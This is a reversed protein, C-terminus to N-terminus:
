FLSIDFAFVCLNLTYIVEKERERETDELLLLKGVLLKMWPKANWGGGGGILRACFGIPFTLRRSNRSYNLVSRRRKWANEFSAAM